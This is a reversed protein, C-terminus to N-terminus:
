NGRIIQSSTLLLVFSDSTQAAEDVTEEHLWTELRENGTVRLFTERRDGVVENVFVWHSDKSALNTEVANARNLMVDREQESESRLSVSREEEEDEDRVRVEQRERDRKRQEMVDKIRESLKEDARHRKRNKTKRIGDSVDAVERRTTDTEKWGRRRRM